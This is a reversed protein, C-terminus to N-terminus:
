CRAGAATCRPRSGRGLAATASGTQCGLRVRVARHSRRRRARAGCGSFPCRAAGGETTGTRRLAEGVSPHRGAPCAELIPTFAPPLEIAPESAFWCTPCLPSSVTTRAHCRQCSWVGVGLHDKDGVPRQLVEDARGIESAPRAEDIGVAEDLGKDGVLDNQLDRPVASEVDDCAVVLDFMALAM